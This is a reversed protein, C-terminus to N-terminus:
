ELDGTSGLKLIWFDTNGAGFSDTYGAVIYGGESTQQISYARDDQNAERIGYTRQWEIEGASTFKLIWFDYDVYSNSGTLWTYGVNGAVIYGGDSTQQISYAHEDEGTGSTRAWQANLSLFSTFSFLFIIALIKGKMTSKEFLKPPFYVLSKEIM